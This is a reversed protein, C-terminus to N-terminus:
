TKALKNQNREERKRLRDCTLCARGGSAPIRLNDGSFPHGNKCHTKAANKAPVSIGRLTNIKGTVPELHSPNVCHRVRCLHDLQLGDPIEGIALKYAMRHARTGNGFKYKPYGTSKSICGNWIWCPGLHPAYDPVPGNKDVLYWFHEETTKFHNRGWKHKRREDKGRIAWYYEKQCDRCNYQRGGPLKQHKAFEELSKVKKCGSCEKTSM